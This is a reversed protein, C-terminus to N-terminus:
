LDYDVCSDILSKSFFANIDETFNGLIENQVYVSNLGWEYIEKEIEKIGEDALYPNDKYNYHICLYREDSLGKNWREWFPGKGQPTTTEWIPAGTDFTLPKIVDLSTAKLFGSEDLFIRDYNEGRLSDPNDASGFDIICGGKFSIKPYPSRVARTIDEYVKANHMLEIIKAYVIMSQKFTPAIIIQKKYIKLTSGRILEGAIMQSKGARRGTIIIKHKQPSRLVKVQKSHPVQNLYAVQFYVPDEYDSEKLQVTAM